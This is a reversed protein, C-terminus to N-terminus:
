DAPEELLAGAGRKRDQDLLTLREFDAPRRFDSQATHRLSKLSYIM